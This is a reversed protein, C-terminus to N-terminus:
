SNVDQDQGDTVTNRSLITLTSIITVFILGIITIGASIPFLVNTLYTQFGEISWLVSWWIYGGYIIILGIISFLISYLEKEKRQNKKYSFLLDIFYWTFFPFIFPIYHPYLIRNLALFLTTFPLVLLLVYEKTKIQIRTYFLSGLLGLAILQVIFPFLTPSLDQLFYNYFSMSPDLRQTHVLFVDYIFESPTLLLFPLIGISFTCFATIWITISSFDKQQLAWIVLPLMFIGSTPKVLLSLGFFLGSPIYKDEIFMLFGLIVFTLMFNEHYGGLAVGLTAPNLLFWNFAFLGYNNGFRRKIMLYLLFAVSFNTFIIFIKAMEFSFVETGVIFILFALSYLYLPPYQAKPLIKGEFVIQNIDKYLLNGQAIKRATEVQLVFDIPNFYILAVILQIGINLITSYILIKNRALFLNFKRDKKETLLM